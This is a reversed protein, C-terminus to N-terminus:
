PKETVVPVFLSGHYLSRPMGRVVKSSSSGIVLGKELPLRKAGIYIEKIYLNRDQKTVRDYKDNALEIRIVDAKAGGEVKFSFAEWEDKAITGRVEAEGILKGDVYVRMRPPGDFQDGASVVVITTNDVPLLPRLKCGVTSALISHEIQWRAIPVSMKTSKNKLVLDVTGSNLGRYAAADGDASSRVLLFEGSVPDLAFGGRQDSVEGILVVKSDIWVEVRYVSVSGFMRQLGDSGIVIRRKGYAADRIRLGPVEIQAFNLSGAVPRLMGLQMSKSGAGTSAQIRVPVGPSVRFPLALQAGDLINEGPAKMAVLSSINRDRFVSAGEVVSQGSRMSVFVGPVGNTVVRVDDYFDFRGEVLKVASPTGELENVRVFPADVSRGLLNRLFQRALLVNGTASNHDEPAIYPFRTPREFTQACLNDGILNRTADRVWNLWPYTSIIIAAGSAKMRRILHFYIEGAEAEESQTNYYFPNGLYRGTPVLAKVAAPDNRDYALYRYYPIFSYYNRFRDAHSRGIVDVLEVGDGKLIFRSHLYYPSVDNTHNFRTDRDAFFTMPGLLIYDLDYQRGVEEWMLYAQGFGHWSSAFNLVEVNQVGFEKILQELQTPYDSKEDVEAGYSISDGFVGIRITGKAKERKFNTFSSKKDTTIRGLRRLTQASVSSIPVLESATPKRTNELRAVLGVWQTYGFASSLGVVVFVSLLIYTALYIHNRYEQKM